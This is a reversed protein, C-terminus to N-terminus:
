SPRDGALAERHRPEAFRVSAAGPFQFRHRRLSPPDQGTVHIAPELTDLAPGVPQRGVPDRGHAAPPSAARRLRQGPLSRTLADRAAGPAARAPPWCLVQSLGSAPSAGHARKARDAGGGSVHALRSRLRGSVPILASSIWQDSGGGRPRAWPSAVGIGSGFASCCGSFGFGGIGIGITPPPNYAVYPGRVVTIGSAPFRTGNPAVLAAAAAPGLGSIAM